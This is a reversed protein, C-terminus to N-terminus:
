SFTASACAPYGNIGEKGRLRAVMLAATQHRGDLMIYEVGAGENGNVESGDKTWELCPGM